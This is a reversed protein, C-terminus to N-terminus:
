EGGAAHRAAWAAQGLALGGDGPPAARHWFAQFGRDRLAAITLETLVGNQFCGGTLAVKAIGVRDAVRGVADALAEHFLRAVVGAERGAAIEALVARVMPRWDLVWPAGDDELIDFRYGPASTPGAGECVAELLMAAEGEFSAKRCLDLLAAVADFLRGMSSALPANVGRALMDALLGREAVSFDAVPALDVRRRWGDGLLAYLLGVAARRPERIAAEGGPLRWPSLHAVRRWHGGEVALFEGGWVTGDGGHGTGDWAVGLVPERPSLGNDAICAAVHALHHQVRVVPLGLREGYRTTHYDPHGDCAVMEPRVRYLATLKDVTQEFLVVASPAALDGIHPGLTVVDGDAVAVTNKLHGGVALVPRCVGPLPLTVPAYGRGLRLVLPRGAAVRVVSDDVARRIPRDHLLFTDAIGSLRLRAEVNDTAIPEDSLNGSTAVVPFGLDRMLLHHLPTYPLMVGLRAMGPAVSPAIGGTERRRLLVIPAAACTLAEREVADIRCCSEAEDLGNVMLALPKNSRHKRLRLERVVDDDRADCMLHFGGIGKLAVIGGDRLRIATERLAEDGRAEIRGEGDELWLTPGCDPCANPQAHFRRSSPDDYEARCAPCMAFESMATRARDYPVADIISYRPGCDTCNTFPYRYRRDTPDFIERLCAPCTALDALVMARGGGDESQRIAFGERGRPAIERVTMGTIRAHPPGERALAALFDDLARPAGEVEVVVGSATNGVWGALGRATAQGYVFPRFGVGQVLGEIEIRRRETM